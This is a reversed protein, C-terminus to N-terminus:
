AILHGVVNDPPPPRHGLAYYELIQKMQERRGKWQAPTAIKKGDDGILPDPMAARVPLDKVAPMATSEPGAGHAAGVALCFTVCVSPLFCFVSTRMM